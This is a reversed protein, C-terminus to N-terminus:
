TTKVTNLDIALGAEILGFCDFHWEFLLPIVKFPLFEIAGIECNEYFDDKNFSDSDTGIVSFWLYDIPVFREGNVEIEKTLDSLGRLLPFIDSYVYQETVTRGIEHFEVYSATLGVIEFQMPKPNDDYETGKVYEGMANCKLEYPLYPALHKLELKM